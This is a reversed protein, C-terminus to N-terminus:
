ALHAMSSPLRALGLAEYENTVPDLVSLVNGRLEVTLVETKQGARNFMSLIGEVM